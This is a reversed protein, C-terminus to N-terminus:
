KKWFKRVSENTSKKCYSSLIIDLNKSYIYSDEINFKLCDTNINTTDSKVFIIKDSYQEIHNNIESNNKCDQADTSILSTSDANEKNYTYVLSDVSQDKQYVSKQIVLENKPITDAIASDISEQTFSRRETVVNGMEDSFIDPIVLWNNPYIWDPDIIYPNAKYIKPWILGNHYFKYALHSLHDNKKILYEYSNDPNILKSPNQLYVYPSKNSDSAICYSLSIIFLNVLLITRKM